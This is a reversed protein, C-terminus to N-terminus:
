VKLEVVMKGTCSDIGWHPFCQGMQLTGGKLKVSDWTNQHPKFSYPFDSVSIDIILTFFLSPLSGINLMTKMLKLYYIM